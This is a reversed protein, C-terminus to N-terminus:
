RRRTRKRKHKRTRGGLFPNILHEMPQKMSRKAVIGFNARKMIHEDLVPRGIARIKNKIM